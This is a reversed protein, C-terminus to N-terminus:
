NQLLFIRSVENKQFIVVFSFKSFETWKEVYKQFFTYFSATKLTFHTEKRLLEFQPSQVRELCLKKWFCKQKLAFDLSFSLIGSEVSISPFAAYKTDVRCFCLLSFPPKRTWLEIQSHFFTKSSFVKRLQNSCHIQKAFIYFDGADSM